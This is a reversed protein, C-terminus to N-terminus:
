KKQSLATNLNIASNILAMHTYSQPFNGLSEGTKIDIEESYLGLGNAYTLLKEFLNQAEELRGLKTLCDVLWFSCITFAGEEGELNDHSKYRRVLGDESLEETIREITAKMKPHKAPLFKVLPMLLNSADLDDSGYYMTFAKKKTSWGKKMIDNKINERVPRWRQADDFYGLENALRVGRDLAVWTWMKSHVFHKPEGRLEWVGRDPSEWLRAVFDVINRIEEYIDRLRASVYRHSFYAADVLIGYVDLQFQEYAANGIRVHKSKRYGEFHNLEEEGLYMEGEVGYMIQLNVGSKEAISLFWSLFSDAEAYQGLLNFAYISFASDRLWTYRYDWNRPGGITEPLSTTAAAVPAGTPAYELLKLTLASRLVKEKWRGRYSCHHTWGRWFLRTRALKEAPSYDKVNLIASDGYKTVFWTEDGKKVTFEAILADGKKRLVVSSALILSEKSNSAAGIKGESSIYTKGRAYNLKPRFLLRTPAAGEIGKVNRIIERFTTLKGQFMHCPMFDTLRFTGKDTQFTTTLVNTDEEYRPTSTYEISPSIQFNGGKKSDLLAAFVSPSDARPLCCWDISGDQGVLAVSHMDGILGYASICKYGSTESIKSVEQPM